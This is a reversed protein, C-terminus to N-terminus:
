ILRCAQGHQKSPHRPLSHPDHEGPEAATGGGLAHLEALAAPLDASRPAAGLGMSTADPVADNGDVHRVEALGRGVREIGVLLGVIVSLGSEVVLEQQELAGDSALVLGLETGTRAAGAADGHQPVVSAASAAPAHQSGAAFAVATVV